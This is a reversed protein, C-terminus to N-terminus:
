LFMILVCDLRCLLVKSELRIFKSTGGLEEVYHMQFMEEAKIGAQCIPDPHGDDELMMEVNHKFQDYKTFVAIVPV